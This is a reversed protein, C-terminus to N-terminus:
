KTEPPNVYLKAGDSDSRDLLIPKKSLKPVILYYDNQSTLILTGDYGHKSKLLYSHEKYHQYKGRDIAEGNRWLSYGNEIEIRLIPTNAPAENKKDKISYNGIVSPTRDSTLYSVGVFIAILVIFVGIASIWIKKM